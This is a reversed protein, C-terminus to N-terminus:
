FFETDACRAHLEIWVTRLHVRTCVRISLDIPISVLQSYKNPSRLRRYVYVRRRICEEISKADIRQCWLRIVESPNRFTDCIHRNLSTSNNYVDNDLFFAEVLNSEADSM